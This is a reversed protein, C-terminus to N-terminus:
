RILKLRSLVRGLKVGGPLMELDNRNVAGVALLVVAYVIVGLSIALLVAKNSGFVTNLYGYSFYVLLSMIFVAVVPKVIFDGFRM